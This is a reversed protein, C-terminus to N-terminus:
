GIFKNPSVTTVAGMSVLMGNLFGVGQVALLGLGSLLNNGCTTMGADTFYGPTCNLINGPVYQPSQVFIDLVHEVLVLVKVVINNFISDFM